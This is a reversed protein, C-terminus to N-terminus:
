FGNNGSDYPSREVCEEVLEAMKKVNSRNKGATLLDLRGLFDEVWALRRKDVREDSHMEELVHEVIEKKGIKMALQLLMTYTISSPQVGESQMMDLIEMACDFDGRKAAGNILSSFTYVNPQVGHLKMDHLIRIAEELRSTRTMAAIMSTYTVLNPKIGDEQMEKFLRKMEDFRENRGLVDIITSYTIVDPACRPTNRMIQLLDLARDINGDECGRCVTLLANYTIVNPKIDSALMHEHVQFAKDLLNARGCLTILTTFCECNPKLGRSIMEDYIEFAEAVRDSKAATAMLANYSVENCNLGRQEMHNKVRIAREFNPKDLAALASLLTNYTVLDPAVGLGNEVISGETSRSEREMQAVLEFAEDLMNNKRLGNIVSNYSYIDPQIQWDKMRSLINLAIDVSGARVCCSILVNFSVVDPSVNHEAMERLTALAVDLRQEKACANLLANYSYRNLYYGAHYCMRAVQQAEDIMAVRSLAVFVFNFARPGLMTSVDMHRVIHDLSSFARAAHSRTGLKMLSLFFFSYIRATFRAYLPPHAAAADILRVAAAYRRSNVCSEVARLLNPYTTRAADADSLDAALALSSPQSPAPKLHARPRARKVSPTRRASAPATSSTSPSPNTTPSSTVSAPRRPGSPTALARPPAVVFALPM